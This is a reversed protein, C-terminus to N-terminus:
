LHSPPLQFFHLNAWTFSPSLCACVRGSQLAGTRCLLMKLANMQMCKEQIKVLRRLLYLNRDWPNIYFLLCFCCCCCCFCWRFILDGATKQLLWLTSPHQGPLLTTLFKEWVQLPPGQLGTGDQGKLSFVSGGPTPEMHMLIALAPLAWCIVGEGPRTPSLLLSIGLSAQSKNGQWFSPPTFFSKLYNYVFYLQIEQVFSNLCGPGYGGCFCVTLLPSSPHAEMKFMEKNGTPLLKALHPWPIPVSLQFHWTEGEDAAHFFVTRRRGSGM